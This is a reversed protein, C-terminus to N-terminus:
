WQIATGWERCEYNGRKIDKVYVREFHYGWKASPFDCLFANKGNRYKKTEQLLFRQASCLM